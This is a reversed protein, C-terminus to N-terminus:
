FITLDMFDIISHVILPQPASAIDWDMMREDIM